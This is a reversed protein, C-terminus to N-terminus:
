AYFCVTNSNFKLVSISHLYTELSFSLHHL